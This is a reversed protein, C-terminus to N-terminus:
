IRGSVVTKLGIGAVVIGGIILGLPNMVFSVDSDLADWIGLAATLAGATAFLGGVLRIMTEDNAM